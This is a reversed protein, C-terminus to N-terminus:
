ESYESYYSSSDNTNKRQLQQIIQKLKKNEDMLKKCKQALKKNDELIQDYSDFKEEVKIKEKPKEDDFLKLLELIEDRTIVDGYNYNWDKDSTNTCKGFIEYLNMDKKVYTKLLDELFKKVIPTLKFIQVKHYHYINDYHRYIIKRINLGILKAMNQDIEHSVRNCWLPFLPYKKHAYIFDEYDSICKSSHKCENPFNKKIKAITENIFKRLENCNYINERIYNIPLTTCTFVFKDRKIPVYNLKEVQIKVDKINEHVWSLLEPTYNEPKICYKFSNESIKVVDIEKPIDDFLTNNNFYIM